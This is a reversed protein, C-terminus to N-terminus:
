HGDAPSRIARRELLYTPRRCHANNWRRLQDFDHLTSDRWWAHSFLECIIRSPHFGSFSDAIGDVGIGDTDAGSANRSDERGRRTGAVVAAGIVAGAGAGKLFNRRSLKSESSKETTM